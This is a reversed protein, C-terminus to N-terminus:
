FLLIINFFVIGKVKTVKRTRKEMRRCIRDRCTGISDVCLCVCACVCVSRHLMNFMNYLTRNLIFFASALASASPCISRQSLIKNQVYFSNTFLYAVLIKNVYIVVNTKQRHTVYFPFINPSYKYIAIILNDIQTALDCM